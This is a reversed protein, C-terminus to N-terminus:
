RLASWQAVRLTTYTHGDDAGGIVEWDWNNHRYRVTVGSTHTYTKDATKSWM